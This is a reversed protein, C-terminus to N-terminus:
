SREFDGRYILLFQKNKRVNKSDQYLISKLKRKFNKKEKKLIRDKHFRSKMLKEKKM